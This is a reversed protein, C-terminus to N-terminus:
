EIGATIQGTKTHGIGGTETTYSVSFQGDYKTGSLAPLCTITYIGREGIPLTAPGTGTGCKAAAVTISSIGYGLSNQLVLLIKDASVKYDLCTIGSQLFCRGVITQTQKIPTFPPAPTEKPKEETSDCVSNSNQDLCCANNYMLYPKNCVVVKESTRDLNNNQKSIKASCSASSLTIFLFVAFLIIKKM